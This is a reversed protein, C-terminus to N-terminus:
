KRRMKPNNWEEREAFRIIKKIFNVVSLFVLFAFTIVLYIFKYSGAQGIPVGSFAWAMLGNVAAVAMYAYMSTGWYKAVSAAQLSMLSNVLAFLMTFATAISWPFLPDGEVLGSKVVLWSIIMLLLSAGVIGLAQQIPSFTRNSM